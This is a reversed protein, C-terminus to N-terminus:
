ASGLSLGLAWAKANSSPCSSFPRNEAFAEFNCKSAGASRGAEASFVVVWTSWSWLLRRETRRCELARARRPAAGDSAAVAVCGVVCVCACVGLMLKTSAVRDVIFRRRPQHGFPGGAAARLAVFRARDVGRPAKALISLCRTRAWTWALLFVRCRVIPSPRRWATREERPASAKTIASPRRGAAAAAKKQGGQCRRPGM